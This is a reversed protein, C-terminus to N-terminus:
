LGLCEIRPLLYDQHYRARFGLMYGNGFDNGPMALRRPGLRQKRVSAVIGYENAVRGALLVVRVGVKVEVLPPYHQLPFKEPLDAVVSRDPRLLAVHYHGGLPASVGYSRHTILIGQPQPNRM